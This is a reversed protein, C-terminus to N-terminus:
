ILSRSVTLDLTLAQLELLQMCQQTLGLHSETRQTKNNETDVQFM